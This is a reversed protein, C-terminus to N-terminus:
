RREDGGPACQHRALDAAERGHDVHHRHLLERRLLERVFASEDQDLQRAALALQEALRKSLRLTLRETLRSLKMASRM